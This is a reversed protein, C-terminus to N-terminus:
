LGEIKKGGITTLTKGKIFRRGEAKIATLKKHTSKGGAVGDRPAPLEEGRSLHTNVLGDAKDVVM